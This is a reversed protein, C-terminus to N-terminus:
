SLRTELISLMEWRILRVTRSREKLLILLISPSSESVLRLFNNRAELLILFTGKVLYLQKDSRLGQTVSWGASM